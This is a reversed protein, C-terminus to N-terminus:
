DIPLGSPVRSPAVTRMERARPDTLAELFEVIEAIEQDSLGLPTRLRADLTALVTAITTEDGHHTSRLAPHLQSVEYTQNARLVDNYHRVVATLSAYAGNHMYPATLEVNRLPAVRFLFRQDQRDNAGGQGWDLPTAPARGPGIQPVGINLFAPVALLAGSHCSICRGRGIFLLGGRLQEPTLAADDGTVFRDLPTIGSSFADAEFAAIANAAHQFGLQAQPVGPFAAEFMAAYEPIALLRRMVARWIEDVNDDDIAALENPDGHVDIDGRQGRMEERVTVPLMAQAAVGGSLGAPLTMGPTAFPVGGSVGVRGDWFLAILDRLNFLPPANRALFRGSGLSRQGGTGAGGTGISLTLGDGSANAPHHCTACSIDRNGSLIKDFLLAQGLAVLAANRPPAPPAPRVGTAVLINRLQAEPSTAPPPVPPAPPIPPRPPPEPEGPVPSDCAMLGALLTVALLKRM